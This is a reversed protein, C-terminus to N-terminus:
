KCLKVRLLKNTIKSNFTNSNFNNNPIIMDYHICKNFYQQNSCNFILKVNEYIFYKKKMIDFNNIIYEKTINSNNQISINYIIKVLIDKKLNNIFLLYTNSDFYYKSIIPIKILEFNNKLFLYLEKLTPSNDYNYIWNFNYIKNKFYLNFIFQCGEFYNIIQNNTSSTKSTTLQEKIKFLINCKNNEDFWIGNYLYFIKDFIDIDIKLLSKFEDNNINYLNKIKNLDKNVMEYKNYINKINYKNINRIEGKSIDKINNKMYICSNIEERIDIKSLKYNEIIQYLKKIYIKLNNYNIENNIIINININDYTSILIPIDEIDISPIKPLFDDGLLLLIFCIDNIKQQTNLKLFQKVKITNIYYYEKIFSSKIKNNSTKINQKTSKIYTSRSNIFKGNNTSDINKYNYNYGIDFILVQHENYIDININNISNILALLILDADPSALLIKKNIFINKNFNIFNMIQHEAEGYNIDNIKFNGLIKDSKFNLFKQRIKNIITSNLGIPPPFESLLKNRIEKESIDINDSNNTNNILLNNTIEKIIDPYLRRGIQEKIKAMSPIGDFFIYTKSYKNTQKIHNKSLFKTYEFIYKVLTNIILDINNYDLLLLKDFNNNNLLLKINNISNLKSFYIYHTDIIYNLINKWDKNNKNMEDLNFKLCYLTRIFYNIENHLISYYVYLLSQFDLILYDWKNKNKNNFEGNFINNKLLYRTFGQIGM